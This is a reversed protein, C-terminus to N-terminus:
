GLRQPWRVGAVDCQRTLSAKEPCNCTSPNHLHHVAKARRRNVYIICMADEKRERM